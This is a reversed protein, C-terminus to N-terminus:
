PKFFVDTNVTQAGTGRVASENGGGGPITRYVNLTNGPITSENRAFLVRADDNSFRAHQLRGSPVLTIAAVRLDLPMRILTRDYDGSPLVQTNLIVLAWSGSRAISQVEGLIGDAVRFREGTTLDIRWIECIKNFLPGATEGVPRSFFVSKGDSSFRISGGVQSYNLDTTLRQVRNATLDTLFLDVGTAQQRTSMAYALRTGDPSWDPASLIIQTNVSAVRPSSGDANAVVLESEDNALTAVMALKTGDPSWSLPGLALLNADAFPPLLPSNGPIQDTAGTFTVRSRAASGTDLFLAARTGVYEVSAVVSRAANSSPSTSDDGCASLAVLTATFFLSRRLTGIRFRRSPALSRVFPM